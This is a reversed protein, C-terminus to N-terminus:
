RGEIGWVGPIATGCDPCSGGAMRNTRVRFGQREILVAGCGHCHTHETEGVLGPLNGAYVFQLGARRGIEHARLLTEAPTRGRDDLKYDPHFATVHWPTERSVSALFGAMDQLEGDSDNQDPVILTVVEVWFDM